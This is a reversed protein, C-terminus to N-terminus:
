STLRVRVGITRVPRRRPRRTRLRSPHRSRTPVWWPVRVRGLWHWSGLMHGVLRLWHWSWLWHVVLRLWHWSWLWHLVPGLWNWSWRRNAVLRLRCGLRRGFRLWLLLGADNILLRPLLALSVDSGQLLGIVRLESSVHIQSGCDTGKTDGEHTM